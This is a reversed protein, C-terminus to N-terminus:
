CNSLPRLWNSCNDSLSKACLVAAINCVSFPVSKAIDNTM